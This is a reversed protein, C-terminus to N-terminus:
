RSIDFSRLSKEQKGEIGSWLQALLALSVEQVEKPALQELQRQPIPHRGLKPRDGQRKRDWGEGLWTRQDPSAEFRKTDLSDIRFLGMVNTAMWGVVNYPMGGPGYSLFLRYDNWAARVVFVSSVLLGTLVAPAYVKSRRFSDVGTSLRDRMNNAINSLSAM